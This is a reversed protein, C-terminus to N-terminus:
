LTECPASHHWLLRLFGPFPSPNLRASVACHHANEVWMLYWIMSSKQHTRVRRILLGELRTSSTHVCLNPTVGSGRSIWLFVIDVVVRCNVMYVGGSASALRCNLSTNKETEVFLPVDSVLLSFPGCKKFKGFADGRDKDKDRDKMHTATVCSACMISFKMRLRQLNDFFCMPVHHLQVPCDRYM